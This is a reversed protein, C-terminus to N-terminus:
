KGYYADLPQEEDLVEINTKKSGEQKHASKKAKSGAAGDEGYYQYSDVVRGGEVVQDSDVEPRRKALRSASRDRSREEYEEAIRESDNKVQRVDVVQQFPHKKGGKGFVVAEEDESLDQGGLM